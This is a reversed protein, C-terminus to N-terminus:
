ASIFHRSKRKVDEIQNKIM